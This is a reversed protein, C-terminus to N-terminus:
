LLESYISCIAVGGVCKAEIENRFIKNTSDM